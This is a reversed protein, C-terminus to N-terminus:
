GSLGILFELSFSPQSSQLNSIAALFAEVFQMSQIGNTRANEAVTNIEKLQDLCSTLLQSFTNKTVYEQSSSRYMEEVFSLRGNYAKSQINLDNSEQSINQIYKTCNQIEKEMNNMRNEITNKQSMKKQHIEMELLEIKENQKMITAKMDHIDNQILSTTLNDSSSHSINPYNHNNENNEDSVRESVRDELQSTGYFHSTDIDEEYHTLTSTPNYGRASVRGSVRESVRDSVGTTQLRATTHFQVNKEIKSWDM